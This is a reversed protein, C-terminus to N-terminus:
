SSSSHAPLSLAKVQDVILKLNAEPTDPHVGHGLNVIWHPHIKFFKLYNQMYKELIDSPLYLPLHPDINGQLVTKAPLKKSLAALDTQHDVGLASLTSIPMSELGAALRPFFILPLQEKNLRQSLEEIFPMIWLRYTDAPLLGAWSEFIQFADVGHDKQGLAYKLSTKNICDIWALAQQSNKYLYDLAKTFLGSGGEFLYLFVTFPAGCFGLLPVEPSKEKVLSITKFVAKFNEPYGATNLYEISQALLNARQSSSLDKLAPSVEPGNKGFNVKFGMAELVVLIDSFLIAVDVGLDKIPLLTVQCALEPTYLLEQFSHKEKLQRYSRLARGAQRMFWVPPRTVPEHRLTRLFLSNKASNNALHAPKFPM